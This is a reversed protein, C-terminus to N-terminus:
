RKCIQPQFGRSGCGDDCCPGWPSAAILTGSSRHRSRSHRDQLNRNKTPVLWRRLIGTTDTCTSWMKWFFFGTAVASIVTDFTGFRVPHNEVPPQTMKKKLFRCNPSRQYESIFHSKEWTAGFNQPPLVMILSPSFLCRTLHVRKTMQQCIPTKAHFWSDRM